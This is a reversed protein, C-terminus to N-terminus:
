FRCSWQGAMNAELGVHQNELATVPPSAIAQTRNSRLAHKGSGLDTSETPLTPSPMGWSCRPMGQFLTQHCAAWCLLEKQKVNEGHESAWLRNAFDFIRTCSILYVLGKPKKGGTQGELFAQHTSATRTAAPQPVVDVNIGRPPLQVGVLARAM